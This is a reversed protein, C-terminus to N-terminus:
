LGLLWKWSPMVKIKMGSEKFLSEQNHTLIIGKKLKFYKMAEVLGKIEREKNEENLEWTAQIAANKPLVFDCEIKENISSFIGNKMLEALISNLPLETLNSFNRTTIFNPVSVTKKIKTEESNKKNEAEIEKQEQM